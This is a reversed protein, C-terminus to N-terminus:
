KQTSAHSPLMTLRKFPYGRTVAPLPQRKSNVGNVKKSPHATANILSPSSQRAAQFCRYVFWHAKFHSSSCSFREMHHKRLSWALAQPICGVWFINGIFHLIKDMKIM